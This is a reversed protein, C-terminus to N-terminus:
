AHSAGKLSHILSSANISSFSDSLSRIVFGSVVFFLDVGISVDFVATLRSYASSPFALAFQLHAIIVLLIAVALLIVINENKQDIM